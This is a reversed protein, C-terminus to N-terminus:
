PFAGADQGQDRGGAAQGLAAAGGPPASSRPSAPRRTSSLGENDPYGADAAAAADQPKDELHRRFFGADFEATEGEEALVVEVLYAGLKEQVAEWVLLQKSWDAYEESGVM